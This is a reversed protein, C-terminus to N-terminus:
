PSSNLESWTKETITHVDHFFSIIVYRESETKKYCSKVGTVSAQIVISFTNHAICTTTITNILYHNRKVRVDAKTTVNQVCM